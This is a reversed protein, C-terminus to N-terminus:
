ANAKRRQDLSVEIEAWLAGVLRQEAWNETNGNDRVRSFHVEVLAHCQQLTETTAGDICRSILVIADKLAEPTFEASSM